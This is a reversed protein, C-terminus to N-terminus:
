NIVMIKTVGGDSSSSDGGGAGAIVYYVGSKVRRGSMDKCDWRAMGGESRIQAVVNGSADAIKVLSNDMLGTISVDGDYDPRVPNPYAYIESFGSAAPSSDSSYSQVGYETSILVENSTLVPQVAYVVNSLIPSNDINFNDIINDGGASTLYIGSDATSIWKRGSPDASISTIKETNLLYDAYNTGDNRPVKIKIVEGPKDYAKALDPIVIIGRDTGIWLRGNNERYLATIQYPTCKNGDQDTIDVVHLKRDDSEDLWTGRTDMIFYGTNYWSTAVFVINSRPDFVIRMDKNGKYDEPLHYIKWDDATVQTLDGLRKERPLIMYAFSIEDPANFGVWLNGEPDIAADFVRYDWIPKMPSNSGNFTVVHHGDRSVVLGEHGHCIYVIDNNDPDELVRGPSAYLAKDGGLRQGEIGLETYATVDKPSMDVIHGDVFLDVQQAEKLGEEILGAPHVQTIGLNTAYVRKGDPTITLHAVRTSKVAEPLYPQMLTVPTQGALNYAAFGQPTGVFVEEAGKRTVARSVSVGAPYSVAGTYAGNGDFLMFGTGDAKEVMYGGGKLPSFRGRAASNAGPIDYVKIASKDSTIEVKKVMNDGDVVLIADPTDLAVMDSLYYTAIWKSDGAHFKDLPMWTFKDYIFLLMYDGMSICSNLGYPIPAFKRVDGRNIDIYVIGDNTSAVIVGDKFSIHRIQKPDTLYSDRIDPVFLTNGDRDMIDLSADDYVIVLRSTAYDYYIDAVGSNNLGSATNFAINYSGDPAVAFLSGGSIYYVLNHDTAIIRDTKGSYVPFTKWLSDDYRPAALAVSCCTLAIVLPALIRSYLGGAFIRSLFKTM